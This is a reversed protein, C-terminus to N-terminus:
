KVTSTTPGSGNMDRIELNLPEEIGCKPCPFIGTTHGRGELEERRIANGCHVCVHVHLLPYIPKESDTSVM